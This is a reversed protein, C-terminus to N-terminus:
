LMKATENTLTALDAKERAEKEAQSENELRFQIEGNEYYLDRPRVVVAMAPEPESQNDVQFYGIDFKINTSEATEEIFTQIKSFFFTM